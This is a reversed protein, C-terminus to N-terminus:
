NTTLLYQYFIFNSADVNNNDDDDDDNEVDALARQQKGIAAMLMVVSLKLPVAVDSM